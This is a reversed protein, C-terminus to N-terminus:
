FRVQAYREAASVIGPVTLCRRDEGVVLDWHGSRCPDIAKTVRLCPPITWRSCGQELLTWVFCARLDYMRGPRFGCADAM